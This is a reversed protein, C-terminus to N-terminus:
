WLLEWVSCWWTDMLLFGYHDFSAELFPISIGVELQAQELSIRLLHGMATDIVGHVLIQQVKSILQQVHLQPLGLGQLSAPAHPYVLPFNHNAGMKPLLSTYLQKTILQGQKDSLTRAPLPYCSSAWISVMLACTILSCLNIFVPSLLLSIVCSEGLFTDQVGKM